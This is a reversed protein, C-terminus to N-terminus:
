VSRISHGGDLFFKQGTVWSSDPSLLFNIFKAIDVSKGIGLPYDNRLKIYQETNLKSLWSSSMNTEVVGPIVINLRIGKAVLESSAPALYGELAGKAAAYGSHGSAGEHAALSSILVISCNERYNDKKSLFGTVVIPFITHLLFLEELTKSKSLHVPQFKDQGACHVFGSFPGNVEIFEALILCFHEPNSLDDEIIEVNTDITLIPDVKSIDRTTGLVKYGSQLATVALDRGIGGSIGTILLWSSHITTEVMQRQSFNVLQTM